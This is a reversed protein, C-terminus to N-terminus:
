NVALNWLFYNTDSKLSNDGLVFVLEFYNEKDKINIQYSADADQLNSHLM